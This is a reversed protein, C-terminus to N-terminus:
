TPSSPAACCDRREVGAPAKGALCNLQPVGLASRTSSRRAGRRRPVRRGPGAPLRHRARRCGLRRRPLNHLVLKLGNGDLRQRIEAAPFAYPFLFEVAEFGAKAAREFRDLFPVENFLMTLNAAFQPM